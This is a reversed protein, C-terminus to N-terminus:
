LMLIQPNSSDKATGACAPIVHSAISTTMLLSQNLLKSTHRVQLINVFIDFMGQIRFVLFIEQILAARLSKSTKGSSTCASM